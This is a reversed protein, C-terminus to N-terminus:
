CLGGIERRGVRGRLKTEIARSKTDLLKGEYNLFAREMNVLLEKYKLQLKLEV